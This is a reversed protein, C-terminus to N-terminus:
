GIDLSIGAREAGGGGFIYLATSIQRYIPRPPPGPAPAQAGGNQHFITAAEPKECLHILRWFSSRGMKFCEWFGADSFRYVLGDPLHTGSHREAFGHEHTVM